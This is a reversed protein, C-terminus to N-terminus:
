PSTSPYDFQQGETIRMLLEASPPVTVMQNMAWLEELFDNSLQVSKNANGLFYKNNHHYCLMLLSKLSPM